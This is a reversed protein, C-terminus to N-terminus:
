SRGCSVGSCMLSSAFPFLTLFCIHELGHGAAALASGVALDGIAAAKANVLRPVDALLLKRLLDMACEVPWNHGHHPRSSVPHRARAPRRGHGLLGPLPWSGYRAVPDSPPSSSFQPPAPAPHCSSALT